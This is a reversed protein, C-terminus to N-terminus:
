LANALILFKIIKVILDPLIYILISILIWTLLTNTRKHQEEYKNELKRMFTHLYQIEQQLKLNDYILDNPNQSTTQKTEEGIKIDFNSM